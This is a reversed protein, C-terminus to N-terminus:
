RALQEKGVPHPIMPRHGQVILGQQDLCVVSHPRYDRMLGDGCDDGGGDGDELDGDYESGRLAEWVM